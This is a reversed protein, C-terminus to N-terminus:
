LNITGRDIGDITVAAIGRNSAKTYYYTISQGEFTFTAADEANNTYSTTTDHASPWGIAESYAFWRLGDPFTM